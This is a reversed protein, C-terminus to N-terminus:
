KVLLVVTLLLRGDWGMGDWGTANYVLTSFYKCDLLVVQTNECPLVIRLKM